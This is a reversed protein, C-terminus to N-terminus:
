LYVNAGVPLTLVRTSPAPVMLGSLESALLEDDVDDLLEGYIGSGVGVICGCCLGLTVSTGCALSFHKVEEEKVTNDLCSYERKRYICVNGTGFLISCGSKQGFTDDGFGKCCLEMPTMRIKVRLRVDLM